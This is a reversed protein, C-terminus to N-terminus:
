KADLVMIYLRKRTTCLGIYKLHRSQRVKVACIEYVFSTFVDNFQIKFGRVGYNVPTKYRLCM